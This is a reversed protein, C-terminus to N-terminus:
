IGAFVTLLEHLVLETYHMYPLFRPHAYIYEYNFEKIENLQHLFPESLSIGKEPCSTKCIDIVMNHMIVTTNLVKEDNIKALKVLKDKDKKTIFGLAIADEIDRGVYAIKDAIKLCLGMDCAYASRPIFITWILLNM